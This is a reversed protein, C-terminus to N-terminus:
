PHRRTRSRATCCSSRHMGTTSHRSSNYAFEFMGLLKPWTKPQGQVFIRLAEEMTKNVQDAQGNTQHHYSASFKLETFNLFCGESSQLLSPTVIQFYSRPCVRRVSSM